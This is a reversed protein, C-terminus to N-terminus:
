MARRCHVTATQVAPTVHATNSRVGTARMAAHLAATHCPESNGKHVPRYRGLGIPAHIAAARTLTIAFRDAPRLHAPKASSTAM